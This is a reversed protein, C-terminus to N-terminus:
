EFMYMLIQWAYLFTQCSVLWDSLWYIDSSTALTKKGLLHVSLSICWSVLAFWESPSHVDKWKTMIFTSFYNSTIINCKFGIQKWRKCVSPTPTHHPPQYLFLISQGVAFLRCQDLFCCCLSKPWSGTAFHCPRPVLLLTVHALFWYCLSMPSSGTAFHCPSPVSLFNCHALVCKCLLMTSSVAPIRCQDLFCRYLSMTLSVSTLM